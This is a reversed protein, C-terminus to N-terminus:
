TPVLPQVRTLVAPLPGAETGPLRRWANDQVVFARRVQVREYSRSGVILEVGAARLREAQSHVRDLPALMGATSTVNITRGRPVRVELLLRGPRAPPAKRYLRLWGRPLRGGSAPVLVYARRSGVKPWRRVDNPLGAITRARSSCHIRLVGHGCEATPLLRGFQYTRFGGLPSVRDLRAAPLLYADNVGRLHQLRAPIHSRLTAMPIAGGPAVRVRLLYSDDPVSGPDLLAILFLEASPVGDAVARAPDVPCVVFAEFEEANVQQGPPLWAPGYGQTRRGETILEPRPLTTAPVTVPGQATGPTDLHPSAILPKALRPSVTISPRASAPVLLGDPTARMALPGAASTPRHAQWEVPSGAPDLARLDRDGDILEASGGPPPTWVTAGTREAFEQTQEALGRQAQPDSPWTMWLRLDSGYLPLNGLLAALQEGGHVQQTGGYDGVLFGTARATVAVTVLGDSTATLRHATARRTVFDARTALALGAPLPLGVVGIRPRVVGRDVAFWGPLATALDPPQIVMWDKPRRTVRDLPIAHLPGVEAKGRSLHRHRIEAGDPSVLVDHGLMGAVESFLDGNRAGDGTLIRVDDASEGSRRVLDAISRANLTISPETPVVLGGRPGPELWLDFLGPIRLHRRPDFRSTAPLEDVGGDITMPVPDVREGGDM